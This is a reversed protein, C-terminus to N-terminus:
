RAPSLRQVAIGILGPGTHVCLAVSVEGEFYARANVIHKKLEDRIRNATAKASESAHAVAVRCAHDRAFDSALKITAAIAKIEGRPKAVSQYAGNEDCSIIPRIGLAIGLTAAVKGIRGGRKLYELTPVYFFVRTDALGEQMSREIEDALMGEKVMEAARMVLFGAAIGINKTDIVRVDLAPYEKAMLAIMSGTGSLASSINVSLVHTCGDREFAEFAAAIKESSPLSTKPTQAELRDFLMERSITGDEYSADNIHISLPVVRIGHERAFAEPVDTGSDTLIGIKQTNM